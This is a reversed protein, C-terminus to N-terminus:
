PFESEHSSAKWPVRKKGNMNAAAKPIELGDINGNKNLDFIRFHQMIVILIEFGPIELGHIAFRPIAL